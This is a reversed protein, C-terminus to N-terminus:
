DLPRYPIPPPVRTPSSVLARVLTDSTFRLLVRSHKATAAGGGASSAMLQSDAPRVRASVRPHQSPSAKPSRCEAAQRGICLPLHVPSLLLAPLQSEDIVHSM